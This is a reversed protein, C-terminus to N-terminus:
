SGPYPTPYSFSNGCADGATAYVTSKFSGVGSAVNYKVTTTASGGAAIDGMTAPIASATTVGNTNVTGVISAGHAGGADGANAISYDVSLLHALYDAYSSWKINTKSLSLSPTDCAAFVMKNVGGSTSHEVQANDFIAAGFFYEGDLNTFQIDNASGTNMPRTFEVTWTDNVADYHSASSINGGDGTMPAIRIGAIEDGAAFTDVFATKESERLFYPHAASGDAPQTPSSYTPHGSTAVNDNYGGTKPDGHRGWDTNCSAKVVVDSTGGDAWTITHTLGDETLGYPNNTGICNDLNQDHIQGSQYIGGAGDDTESYVPSMRVSKMHWFDIKESANDTVHRGFNGNGSLGPQFHCSVACGAGENFGAASINWMLAFKDEYAANPDKHSWGYSTGDYAAWAASKAPVHYWSGDGQKVWPARRSDRSTDAYVAKFYIQGNGYVAKLNMLGTGYWGGSVPVDVATAGSWASDVGNGDLVPATDVPVAVLTYENIASSAQTGAMTLLSTLLIITAIVGISAPIIKTANKM